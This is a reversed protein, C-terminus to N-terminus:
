YSRENFLEEGLYDKIQNRIKWVEYRDKNDSAKTLRERMAALTADHIQAMIKKYTKAALKRNILPANPDDMEDKLEALDQIRSSDIYM